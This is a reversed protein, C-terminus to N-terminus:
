PWTRLPAAREVTSRLPVTAYMSGMWTLLVDAATVNLRYDGESFDSDSAASALFAGAPFRQSSVISDTPRDFSQWLTANRADLLALNGHDDLRLAAM